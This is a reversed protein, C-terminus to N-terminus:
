AERGTKATTKPVPSSHEERAGAYVAEIIKRILEEKATIAGPSAIAILKWKTEALSEALRILPEKTKEPEACSNPPPRM